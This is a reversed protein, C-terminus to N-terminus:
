NISMIVSKNLFASKEGKKKPQCLGNSILATKQM